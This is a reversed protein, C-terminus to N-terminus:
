GPWPHPRSRSGSLSPHSVHDKLTPLSALILGIALQERGQTRRLQDGTSKAHIMGRASPFRQKPKGVEDSTCSTRCASAVVAVLILQGPQNLDEFGSTGGSMVRARSGTTRRPSLVPSVEM